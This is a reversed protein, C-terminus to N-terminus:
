KPIRTLTVDQGNEVIRDFECRGYMKKVVAAMVGKEKDYEENHCKVVVKTGDEFYVITRPNNYIVKKIGWSNPKSIVYKYWNNSIYVGNKMNLRETLIIKLNIQTTKNFAIRGCTKFDTLYNKGLIIQLNTFM